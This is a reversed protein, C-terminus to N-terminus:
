GQNTRRELLAAVSPVGIVLTTGLAVVGWEEVGTSDLLMFIIGLGGAFTVIVLVALLPIVMALTMRDNM